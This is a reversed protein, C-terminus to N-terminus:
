VLDHVANERPRWSVADDADDTTLHLFWTRYLSVHFWVKNTLLVWINAPINCMEFKWFRRPQKKYSLNHFAGNLVSRSKDPVDFQEFIFHFILLGIIDFKNFIDLIM